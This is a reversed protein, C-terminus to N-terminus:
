EAEVLDLFAQACPGQRFEQPLLSGCAAQKRRLEAAELMASPLDADRAFLLGNRGEHVLARNGDVDRLVAPVGLQMAELVARSMGESLSPLVLADARALLRYPCMVHGHLTVQKELDNKQVTETLAALMPGEGMVDVQLKVGQAVLRRVADLLVHPQKRLSLNGLFAFTYPAQPDPSRRFAELPAEDVFNGIVKSNRGTYRAIQAAMPETMAVVRDSLRLSTLHAIALAVGPPGYDFRYNRPLNGRVSSIWRAHRRVQLAMADASLCFSIM